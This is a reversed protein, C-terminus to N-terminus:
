AEGGEPGYFVVWVGLDESFEEFRHPVGAAVFIADGPGFPLLDAGRLFIGRGTVIMYIEDQFHPTQSDAGQPAYWRLQMSGQAFIKASVRGPESPTGAAHAANFVFPTM